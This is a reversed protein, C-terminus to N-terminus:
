RSIGYVYRLLEAAGMVFFVEVIPPYLVVAADFRLFRPTQGAKNPRGILVLIVAVATLAIGIVLDM